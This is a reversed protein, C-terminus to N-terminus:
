GRAGVLFLLTDTPATGVTATSTRYTIRIRVALPASVPSLWERAWTATAGPELLYDFAVARISDALTLTTGDGLAAIFRGGELELTVRERHFGGTPVRVWTPATLSAPHGRFDGASDTGVQLNAIAERLWTRANARRELAARTADVHALAGTVGAFVAHAGLVVMAGLLLAVMVEILTFGAANHRM